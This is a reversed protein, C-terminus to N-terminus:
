DMLWLQTGGINNSCGERFDAQILYFINKKDSGLSLKSFLEINKHVVTDQQYAWYWELERNLQPYREELIPEHLKGLTERSEDEFSATGKHYIFTDDCLVHRYGLESARNCYDNEEGYGRGFAASDFLGVEKIVKRKIYMCFGNAMPIPPYRRMSIREIEEAYEDLSMNAPMVNNKNSYPVSCISANNSSPSVTAIGDDSYACELIKEIWRPTVITDSNLLLVDNEESMLMGKNVTGSFGINIDNEYVYVGDQKLSALYTHVHYDSSKDDILILRHTSLDTYKIISSACKKLDELANYIPIIIDVSKRKIEAM